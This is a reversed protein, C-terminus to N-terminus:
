VWNRIFGVRSFIFITELSNKLEIEWSIDCCTIESVFSKAMLRARNYRFSLLFDFCLSIIDSPFISSVFTVSRSFQAPCSSSIAPFSKRSRPSHYELCIEKWLPPIAATSSPLTLEIMNLQFELQSLLIESGYMCLYVCKVWILGWDGQM